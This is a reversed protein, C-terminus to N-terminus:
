KSGDIYCGEPDNQYAAVEGTKLDIQVYSDDDFFICLDSFTQEHYISNRMFQLRDAGISILYEATTMQHNSWNEPETGPLHPV